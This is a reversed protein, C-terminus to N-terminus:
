AARAVAISHAQEDLSRGDQPLRQLEVTDAQEHMRIEFGAGVTHANRDYLLRVVPRNRRTSAQAVVIGVCGDYEGGSVCVTAGVPFLQVMGLFADVAEHNLHSGAASKLL